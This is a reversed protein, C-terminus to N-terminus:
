TVSLLRMIISICKMCNQLMISDLKKKHEMFLFLNNVFGVGYWIVVLFIGLISSDIIMPDFYSMLKLNNIISNEFYQPKYILGKILINLKMRYFYMIKHWWKGKPERQDKTYNTYLVIIGMYTVMLNMVLWHM